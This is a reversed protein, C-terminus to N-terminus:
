NIKSNRDYSIFIIYTGNTQIFIFISVFESDKGTGMTHIIVYQKSNISPNLILFYNKACRLGPGTSILSRM